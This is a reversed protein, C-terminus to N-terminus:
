WRPVKATSVRTAWDEVVQAGGTQALSQIDEDRWFGCPLWFTPNGEGDEALWIRRAIKGSQGQRLWTVGRFVRPFPVVAGNPGYPGTRRISGDVLSLEAHKAYRWEGIYAYAVLGGALFLVATILLIWLDIFWAPLDGTDLHSLKFWVIGLLWLVTFGAHILPLRARTWIGRKYAELDAHITFPPV